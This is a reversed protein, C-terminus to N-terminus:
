HADRFSGSLQRLQRLVSDTYNPQGKLLVGACQSALALREAEELPKATNILVRAHMAWDMSELLDAGYIDPLELDLFIIDPRVAHLKDISDGASAAEIILPKYPELLHRLLYRDGDNDDIILVTLGELSLSRLDDDDEEHLRRAIDVSFQSGQGPVSRVRIEGHLLVALRQALPLGLGNGQVQTLGPMRVRAFEEFIRGLNDESIGVGTDEVVLEITKESPQFVRVTVSGEPTYKFANSILNRMIQFLRNRDTELVVPHELPIVEWTLRPYRLALAATFQRLQEVFTELPFASAVVEMRGSEAEALDLLENVMEALEGAAASIFGVQKLQEPNLHGDTGNLLLKSINEIINIPTRFEHTMNSFFRSKSESAATLEHATKELESYLAVVGKNTTELELNTAELERQKSELESATLLLESGQEQLAIFPDALGASALTRRLGEIKRDDPFPLPPHVAKGARIRTGTPGTEITWHELLRRAGLLGVGMGTPSIYSGNLIDQLEAIGPGQDIAEFMIGAAKGLPDRDLYFHFTGSGAYQYINRALESVATALRIQDLTPLGLWGAIQKACQRCMVVDTEAQILLSTLRRLDTM